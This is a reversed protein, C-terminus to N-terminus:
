SASPAKSASSGDGGLRYEVYAEQRLRRLWAEYEEADKRQMISQRARGRRAENTIDRTRREEVRAIHWGFQSHFPQSMDGVKLTDIQQQFEPAFVGPPQWGLDGGSNKSGPDDSYKKALEAFDGGKKLREYLEYAQARTADENRIANPTLLIHRAKTEDVTQRGGADRKEVLKIINYGNSAEIVNSVDGVALKPVINAFVTPLTGNKRWGLDGGQLAQPSDSNAIALQAFDEGARLRKLVGEAKAHAKERVEPTAADPIAVLIHALHYESQDESGNAALYQDIDQDTVVIRADVEKQRVRNALVQERIQERLATFDLGESKVQAAFQSVSMKNQAAINNIVDNLERDDVKIGAEKARDTQLRMLILRELVQSRVADLPPPTIGRDKMEGQAIAIAQELESQLIVNDNVVAIIRDLSQSTGSSAAAGAAFSLSFLLAAFALRSLLKM